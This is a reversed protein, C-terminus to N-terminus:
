IRSRSLRSKLRSGNESWVPISGPENLVVQRSRQQRQQELYIDILMHAVSDTHDRIAIIEEDSLNTGEAGLLERCCQISLPTSTLNFAQPLEQLTREQTILAAV